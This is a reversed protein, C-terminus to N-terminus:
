APEQAESFQRVSPGAKVPNESAVRDGIRNKFDLKAAITLPKTERAPLGTKEYGYDRQEFAGPATTGTTQLQQYKDILQEIRKQERERAGLTESPQQWRNQEGTQPPAGGSAGLLNSRLSTTM